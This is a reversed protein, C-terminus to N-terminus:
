IPFPMKLSIRDRILAVSSGFAQKDKHIFIDHFMVSPEDFPAEAYLRMEHHSNRGSLFRLGGGEQILNELLHEGAPHVALPHAQCDAPPTVPSRAPKAALM